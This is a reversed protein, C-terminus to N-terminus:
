KKFMGFLGKKKPEEDLSFPEEPLDLEPPPAPEMPPMQMESDPPRMFQMTMQQPAMPPMMASQAREVPQPQWEQQQPKMFSGSDIPKPEPRPKFFAEDKPKFFEERKKGTDAMKKNVLEVLAVMGEAITKNQDLLKDLKRSEM